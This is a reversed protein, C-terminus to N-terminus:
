HLMETAPRGWSLSGGGLNQKGASARSRTPRPLNVTCTGNAAAPKEAFLVHVTLWRPHCYVVTPQCYVYRESSHDKRRVTCTGDAAATGPRSPELHSSPTPVRIAGRGAGAGQRLYPRSQM